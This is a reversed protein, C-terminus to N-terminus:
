NIGLNRCVDRLAGIMTDTLPALPERARVIIGARREWTLQPVDLFAIGEIREAGLISSTAFSLLRTARVVELMFSVSTAEIAPEPPKRGCMWWSAEFRQRQAMGRGPLIWGHADLAALDPERVALLPHGASAVVAQRDHTLPHVVLERDGEAEQSAAVVLDVEGQKLAAVLEADFGGRVRLRGHPCSALVQAVAQPLCRRLWSPGAGIALTGTAGQRLDRLEAEADRLQALIRTSRLVLAEGLANPRVGRPLRELLEGGVSAELNRISKTLGSQSVGAADAARSISGHEVVALFHELQRLNM